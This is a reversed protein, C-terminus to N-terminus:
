LYALREEVYRRSREVDNIDVKCKDVPSPESSKIQQGVIGRINVRSAKPKNTLTSANSNPRSNMLSKKRGTYTALEKDKIQKAYYIATHMSNRM